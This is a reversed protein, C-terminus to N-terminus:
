GGGEGETSLEVEEGGDEPDEVQEGKAEEDERM